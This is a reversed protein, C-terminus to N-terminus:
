AVVHLSQTAYRATQGLSQVPQALIASDSNDKSNRMTALNKLRALEERRADQEQWSNHQDLNQWQRGDDRQNQVQVEIKDVKIGQQELNARISDMQRTVMEATESRESRIRASVEGNRATLTLTIAGLEQPHLQLDLRSGGDRLASLLGSEVQRAVHASLARNQAANGQAFSADSINQEGQLMSYIISNSTASQPPTPRTEVKGLLESWAKGKSQGGEEAGTHPSEAAARTLKGSLGDHTEANGAKDAALNSKARKELGALDTQADMGSDTRQGSHLADNLIGRSNEQVTNDIMVRSQQAKRDQLASAAKEQEMRERAKSIIPKLTQELAADLKQRDARALTFQASAPGMLNGFQESNVHLASFGGFSDSLSQLSKPNLGLGRGLALAEDRSIEISEGPELRAFASSILALAEEGKGEGMKQLAAMSLDGTPDIKGLLATITQADEDSISAAAGKGLLSAMVQALLAGDPQGALVDFQQLSEASVGAKILQERLEQLEQKTFCVEDLTYTVGDTSNRSYPGEVLPRSQGSDEQLASNVSVNQGSEVSGIADQMAQVFDSSADAGSSADMSSLFNLGFGTPDAPLIQM